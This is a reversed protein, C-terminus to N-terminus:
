NAPYGFVNRGDRQIPRYGVLKAADNWNWGAKNTLFEVVMWDPLAAHLGHLM